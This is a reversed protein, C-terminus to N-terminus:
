VPPVGCPYEEKEEENAVVEDPATVDRRELSDACENALTALLRFSGAEWGILTAKDIIIQRSRLGKCDPTTMHETEGSTTELSVLVTTSMDDDGKTRDSTAVILYVPVYANCM